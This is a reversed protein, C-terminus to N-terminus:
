FYINLFVARFIAKIKADSIKLHTWFKRPSAKMPTSEGSVLREEMVVNLTPRLGLISGRRVGNERVEEIESM